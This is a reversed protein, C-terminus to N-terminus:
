GSDRHTSVTRWFESQARRASETAKERKGERRAVLVDALALYRSRRRSFAQPIPRLIAEIEM